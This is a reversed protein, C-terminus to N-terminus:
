HNVARRHKKKAGASCVSLTCSVIYAGLNLFSKVRLLRAKAHDHSGCVLYYSSHTAMGYLSQIGRIDDDHLRINQQYGGYSPWMITGRVDSHHLGIAHGIEHIAVWLLHIGGRGEM